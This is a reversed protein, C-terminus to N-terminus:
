DAFYVNILVTDDPRTGESFDVDMAPRHEMLIPRLVRLELQAPAVVAVDALRQSALAGLTKLLADFEGEM